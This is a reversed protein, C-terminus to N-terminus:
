MTNKWSRMWQQGRRIKFILDAVYLFKSRTEDLNKGDFKELTYHPRLDALQHSLHLSIM